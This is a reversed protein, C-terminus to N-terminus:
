QIITINIISVFRIICYKNNTGSLACSFGTINNFTIQLKKKKIRTLYDLIEM